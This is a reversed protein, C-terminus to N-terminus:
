SNSPKPHRAKVQDVKALYADMKSADGKSQWYLADAFDALPPYEARRKQAYSQPMASRARPIIEGDRVAFGDPAVLEKTVLVAEGPSAQRDAVSKACTGTRTIEGDHARYVVFHVNM